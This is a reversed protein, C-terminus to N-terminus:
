CPTGNDRVCETFPKYEGVSPEEEFHIHQLKSSHKGSADTITWQIWWDPKGQSNVEEFYVVWTIKFDDRDDWTILHDTKISEYNLVNYTDEKFQIIPTAVDNPNGVDKLYTGKTNNAVWGKKSQGYFEVKYWYYNGEADDKYELVKLVQGKQVTGLTKSYKTPLERVNLIDTTIEVHWEKKVEEYYNKEKQKNYIGKGIFFLVVLGVLILFVTFAKKM